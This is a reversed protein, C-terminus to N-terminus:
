TACRTTPENVPCNKTHDETNEITISSINNEDSNYLLQTGINNLVEGYIHM